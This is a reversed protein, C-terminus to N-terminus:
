VHALPAQVGQGPPVLFQSPLMAFPQSTVPLLQMRPNEYVGLLKLGVPVPTLGPVVAWVVVSLQPIEVNSEVVFVNPL